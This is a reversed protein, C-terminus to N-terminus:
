YHPLRLGTLVDVRFNLSRRRQFGNGSQSSMTRATTFQQTHPNAKPSYTNTTVNQLHEFGIV